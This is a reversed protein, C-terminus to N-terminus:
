IKDLIFAIQVIPLYLFSSFMIKLAAKDSGNKLLGFAQIGFLIAAISVIISSTFGTMGYQYPLIGLPILLLTYIMIQLATGFDKKGTPLMKFGARKYDEDGVWAIAWFHPFQWIFQIGFIIFAETTIIGTMAVWGILPPLAGPFAGVLVSIPTTQKLPTYVFAYLILSFLALVASLINVFVILLVTGIFTLIVSFIIAEQVSLSNTPLPRDATRKMLKDLDKEIIQNITNAAGTILFSGIIFMIFHFWNISATNALLYGFGGSFVVLFTLRIKLLKGIQKTKFALTTIALANNYLENTPMNM